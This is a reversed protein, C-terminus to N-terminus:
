LNHTHLYDHLSPPSCRFREAIMNGFGDHAEAMVCTKINSLMAAVYYLKAVPQLYLKLNSSYDVYKWDRAILCYDNEVCVRGSNMQTTFLRQLDSAAGRFGRMIVHSLPYASDGYAYFGRGTTAQLQEMRQIFGSRRLLYGDARRGPVPGYFDLILGNPGVVSQFKIGHGKYYGSYVVTENHEPKCFYRFTGDIFGICNEAPAGSEFIADAFVGASQSWRTIDSIRRVFNDYIHDLVFRFARKYAAPSRGGLPQLLSTWPATTSMRTLFTVLLEMPQFVYPNGGRRHYLHFQGDAEGSRSLGLERLLKPLDAKQFRFLEWCVTDNYM